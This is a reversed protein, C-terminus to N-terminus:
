YPRQNEEALEIVPPQEKRRTIMAGAKTLAKGAYQKILLLDLLFNLAHVRINNHKEVWRVKKEGRMYMEQLTSEKEPIISRYLAAKQDVLDKSIYGLHKLRYHTPMKIGGIGKVNPSDIIFNEFYGSPSEKWMVRDHGASYNLRFWSGAFHDNDIFHFRRFAYRKIGPTNMMREAVKRTFGSEFVEDVDIWLCWDPNRRRAMEYLQIKDRGENYDVTRAVDIVKPHAVLAEYTGDTSGNDLVVIEDALKEFCNLWEEVFRLGDKVRM